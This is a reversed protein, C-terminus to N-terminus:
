ELNRRWGQWCYNGGSKCCSFCWCQLYCFLLLESTCFFLIYRSLIERAMWKLHLAQCHAWLGPILFLCSKDLCELYICWTNYGWNKFIILLGVGPLGQKGNKKKWPIQVPLQHLDPLEPKRKQRRKLPYQHALLDM